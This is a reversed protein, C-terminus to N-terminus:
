RPVRVVVELGKQALNILAGGTGDDPTPCRSMDELRATLTEVRGDLEEVKLLLKDLSECLSKLMTLTAGENVSVPPQPNNPVTEEVPPVPATEEVPPVPAPVAGEVVPAAEVVPALAPVVGEVVDNKPANKPANKTKRCLALTTGLVWAAIEAMLGMLSKATVVKYARIIDRQSLPVDSCLILLAAFAVPSGGIKDLHQRYPPEGLAGGSAWAGVALAETDPMRARVEWAKDVRAIAAGEDMRADYREPYVRKSTSSPAALVGKGIPAVPATVVPATVVPATVVPETVVPETVVPAPRPTPPPTPRPRVVEPPSTYMARFQVAKDVVGKVGNEVILQGKKARSWELAMSMGTHSCSLPRVVVLPVTVPVTSPNSGLMVPRFGAEELAAAHSKAHAEKSIIGIKM